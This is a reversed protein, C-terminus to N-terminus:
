VVPSVARSMAEELKMRGGEQWLREFEADGLAERLHRRTREVEVRDAPWWAAASTVIQADAAALWTAARAAEGRAAAVAALGGLCEAMGRKNGLRRFAALSEQFLEEARAADGDHLALYGLTHILRAHDGLADAERYMAEAREYYPRARDYDGQARAVEGLNNLAFAIQWPDGLREALTMAERLWVDAQKYQGLALSANALHILTNTKDWTDDAQDFLEAALTLHGYADRDRGQNLLNVGYSFHGMSIGLEFGMWDAVQLAEEVRQIAVDHDGHWMAMMGAINLAMGFPIGGISQTARILRESWERGEQIHGRRYWFWLLFVVIWGASLLDHGPEMGWSLAARFNDYEAEVRKFIASTEPGYILAYQTTAQQAFHQLHADRTAALEGAEELKELAYDRITLLMDFRPEDEGWEVQRVLSNRLLTEIGTFVDFAGDANCIAEASELTFGGVFVGLRAFLAQEEPKLLTYSWDIANRVTQQRTPLDAAGGVLLKMSQDLRKLIAAPPLMRIRAAAIELALPLGDLRRCIGAVAVANDPGLEFAPRAAQAHRVFFRVAESELLEEVAHAGAAPVALTDVPYEREGRISLPIRSTALTKIRPAASLLGAVIPAASIVQELNDLILFVQRDALFDKLNDFPPRGGGERIGMTHAITSAVLTPNTIPALDVFYVGQPFHDLLARGVELSLRTKGTGGPGTLTVLRAGNGALLATLEVVEQERGIIPTPPTPLNGPRGEGARPPPFDNPLDDIWLQYVTEPRSLGKLPYTGLEILRLGDPLEDRVLETTAHSILTQGGHALGRIRACRNVASGYYDGDRWDAAGTHLSVRVRLAFPLDALEAALARQIAAAAGVAPGPREFVAFRSDGEGRPRVVLGGAAAVRAEILADHRALAARMADPHQEWLPTSDEVDTFLFTVTGTPYANM